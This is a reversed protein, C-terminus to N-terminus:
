PPHKGAFQKVETCWGVVHRSDELDRLKLSEPQITSIGDIRLDAFSIRGLESKLVHWYVVGNEWSVPCLMTSFGKLLPRGKFRTVKRTGVFDAAIGLPIDLGPKGSPRSRIPFGYVIVFNNMFTQWCNGNTISVKGLDFTTTTVEFHCCFAEAEGQNKTDNESGLQDFCLKPKSIIGQNLKPQPLLASALWSLQVGIEALEFPNGQCYLQLVGESIRIKALNDRDQLSDSTGDTKNDRNLAKLISKVLFPGTSPWTQRIYDECVLAQAWTSDGTFTLVREFVDSLTKLSSGEQYIRKSPWELTFCVRYSVPNRHRSIRAEGYSYKQHHLKLKHLIQQKVIDMSNDKVPDLIITNRISSVLWEFSRSRSLIQQYPEIEITALTKGEASPTAHQDYDQDDRDFLLGIRDRWDPDDAKKRPEEEYDHDRLM